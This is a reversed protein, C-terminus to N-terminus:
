SCCLEFSPTWYLASCGPRVTILGVNLVNSEPLGSCDLGEAQTSWLCILLSALISGNRHTRRLRFGQFGQQAKTISLFHFLASSSDRAVQSMKLVLIISM